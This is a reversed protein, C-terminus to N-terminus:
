RLAAIMPSYISDGDFIYLYDSAFLTSFRSFTLEIFPVESNSSSVKNHKLLWSCKQSAFYSNLHPFNNTEILFNTSSTVLLKADCHFYVCDPPAAQGSKCTGVCSGNLCFKSDVCHFDNKCENSFTPALLALAEDNPYEASSTTTNRTRESKHDICKVSNNVLVFLVLCAALILSAHKSQCILRTIYSRRNIENIASINM